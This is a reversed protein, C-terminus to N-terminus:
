EENLLDKRVINVIIEMISNFTDRYVQIDNEYPDDVHFCYMKSRHIKFSKRKRLKSWMSKDLVYLKDFKGLNLTSINKAPLRMLDLELKENIVDVTHQQYYDGNGSEVGASEIYITSPLVRKAIYEAMVSRCTNGICIFLINM